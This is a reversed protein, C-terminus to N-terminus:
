TTMRYLGWHVRNCKRCLESIQSKQPPVPPNGSTHGQSRQPPFSGLAMRKALGAGRASAGAAQAMRNQDAYKAANEKLSEEYISARDVV